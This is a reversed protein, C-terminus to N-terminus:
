QPKVGRPASRSRTPPIPRQNKRRRRRPGYDARPFLPRSISPGIIRASSGYCADPRSPPQILPNMCGGFCPITGSGLASAQRLPTWHSDRNCSSFEYDRESARRSPRQRRACCPSRTRRMPTSMGYSSFSGTVFIITEANVCANAPKPQVRPRLTRISRRQAPSSML